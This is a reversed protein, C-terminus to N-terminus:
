SCTCSTMWLFIWLTCLVLLVLTHWSQPRPEKSIPERLMIQFMKDAQLYTKFCTMRKVPWLLVWSTGLDWTLWFHMAAEPTWLWSSSSAEAKEFSKLWHIWMLVSTKAGGGGQHSVHILRWSHLRKDNCCEPSHHLDTQRTAELVHDQRSSHWGMDSQTDGVSSCKECHRRWRQWSIQSIQGRLESLCSIVGISDRNEWNVRIGIETSSDLSFCPYFHLGSPRALGWCAWRSEDNHETNRGQVFWVRWPSCDDKEVNTCCLLAGTKTASAAALRALWWQLM